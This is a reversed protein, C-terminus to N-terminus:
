LRFGFYLEFGMRTADQGIKNILVKFDVMLPTFDFGAGLLLSPLFVIEEASIPGNAANTNEPRYWVAASGGFGLGFDAKESFRFMMRVMGDLAFVHTGSHVNKYGIMARLDLPINQPLESYDYDFYAGGQFGFDVGIYGLQGVLTVLRATTQHDM